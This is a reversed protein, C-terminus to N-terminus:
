SYMNCPFNQFHTLSDNTQHDRDAYQAQRHGSRGIGGIPARRDVTGLDTATLKAERGATVPAFAFRGVAITPRRASATGGGAIPGTVVGTTVAIILPQDSSLKPRCPRRPRSRPRRAWSSWEIGLSIKAQGLSKAKAVRDIWAPTRATWAETAAVHLRRGPTPPTRCPVPDSALSDAFLHGGRPPSAGAGPLVRRPRLSLGSRLRPKRAGSALRPAHSVTCVPVGMSASAM